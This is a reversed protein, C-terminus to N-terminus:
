SMARVYVQEDENNHVFLCDLWNSFLVRGFSGTSNRASPTVTNGVDPTMVDWTWTGSTRTAAPPPTLRNVNAAEDNWHYYVDRNGDYAVAGQNLTTPTTGTVTLATNGSVPDLTHYAVGGSYISNWLLVIDGPADYKNTCYLGVTNTTGAHETWTDGTIDYSCINATSSAAYGLKHRVPDYTVCGFANGASPRTDLQTWDEQLATYVFCQEMGNGDQSRAGGPCRYFDGDVFLLNGYTHCSRPRGDFYVGTAEQGDDLNGANGLAGTPPFRLVWKPDDRDLDMSYIENGWYDDHGGGNYQIVDRDEDLAGGAWAFLNKLGGIGRWPADSPYNPNIKPDDEPDVATSQIFNAGITDWRDAVMATRWAPWKVRGAIVRRTGNTVSYRTLAM